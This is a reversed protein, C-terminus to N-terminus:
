RIFERVASRYDDDVAVSTVARSNAVDPDERGAWVEETSFTTVTYYGGTPHDLWMAVDVSGDDRRAVLVEIGSSDYVEVTVKEGAKSLAKHLAQLEPIM